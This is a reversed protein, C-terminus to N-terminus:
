CTTGMKKKVVVKVETRKEFGNVKRAEFRPKDCSVASEEGARDRREWCSWGQWTDGDASEVRGGDQCHDM